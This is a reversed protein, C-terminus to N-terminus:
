GAAQRETLLLEIDGALREVAEEETGDYYGRIRGARDVLIFHPSHFVPDGMSGVKFGEVALRHIADEPGTLFHWRQPDAGHERAYNALVEPTDTEPDVSVSLYEVGSESSFRDHLASMNGTMVPCIGACSTFIFDAVWIKGALRTLTFPAGTADTLSFETVEGLTPLVAAAEALKRDRDDRVSIFLFISATLVLALLTVVLGYRKFTM